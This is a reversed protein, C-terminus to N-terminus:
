RRVVRFGESTVINNQTDTIVDDLGVRTVDIRRIPLSLTLVTATGTFTSLVYTLLDGPQLDTTWGTIDVSQEAVATMAPRTGAYLPVSATAWAGVKALRLEVSATVAVPNIGTTVSAIGAFMSCSMIRCPFTVHAFTAMGERLVEGEGGGDFNAMICTPQVPPEPIEQQAKAILQRFMEVLGPDVAGAAASAAAGVLTLGANGIAAGPTLTDMTM